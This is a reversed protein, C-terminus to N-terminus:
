VLGFIHSGLAAAGIIVLLRFSISISYLYRAARRTTKLSKSILENQEASFELLEEQRDAQGQRALQADHLDQLYAEDAATRTMSLNRARTKMRILAAQKLNAQFEM